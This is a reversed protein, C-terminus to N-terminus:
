RGKGLNGDGEEKTGMNGERITGMKGESEEWRGGETGMKEESLDWRGRGEGELYIGMM